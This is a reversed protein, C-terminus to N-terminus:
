KATTLDILFPRLMIGDKNRFRTTATSQYRKGPELKAEFRFSRGDESFGIVKDVALVHDKGLPGFDFGRFNKDMEESFTLTVTIRGAPISENGGASTKLETVSPRAKEYDDDMQKLTRSFFGTKDVFADIQAENAYDLEIMEKIAQKKDKAQDYYKECIAYGIYYGLDREKLENRNTGWLWNYTNDIQYMDKEFLAKVRVENAKGFNIAPTYSPKGTVKTSVFEAVGEYLCYYLLKDALEKQQTHVYEHTCLLAIDDIPNLTKYFFQLHEPLETANVNKDALAMESGILVRHNAITGNTRFAGVTFYIPSPQLEPYAEKLRAIDKQIKPSLKAVSNTNKRISKWFAPYKNIADIYDKATYRRRERIDNLGATGQDFYMKQLLEYQRASDKTTVIADYAKWFHDIDSTIIDNQQKQGYSVSLTLLCFCSLFTKKMTYFNRTKFNSSEKSIEEM